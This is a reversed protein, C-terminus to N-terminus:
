LKTIGGCISCDPRRHVAITRTEGWLGDFILMRGRLSSGQGSDAMGSLHKIAELAMLSGIVGPLAGVVGAEACSLALGPAPPEPFLCFLCPAGRAPDYLTVQGEWQAISGAVLPVGAAVCAANIARRSAFSDTGDLVLDHAAVLEADEATVRRALPTVGVHPNLRVLAEAAAEVKPRGVDASAFIVQRQLNSLGVSDDDAVTIRGVGAAALYMLVPSGLAGAGVVLVRSARLRRQGAGGLERLVIHRAYRDLEADGLPQTPDAPIARAAADSEPINSALLGSALPEAPAQGRRGPLAIGAGPGARGRARARLRGILAAYGAGLAALGTAPVWLDSPLLAQGAAHRQWLGAVGALWIAGLVAALVGAGFRWAIALGALILLLTWM